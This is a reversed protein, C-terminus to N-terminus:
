KYIYIYVYVCVYVSLVPAASWWSGPRLRVRRRTAVEGGRSNGIAVTATETDDGLSSGDAEIATDVGDDVSTPQAQAGTATDASADVSM